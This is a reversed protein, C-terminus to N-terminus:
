SVGAPMEISSRSCTVKELVDLARYELSKWFKLAASGAPQTASYRSVATVFCVAHTVLREFIPVLSADGDVVQRVVQLM